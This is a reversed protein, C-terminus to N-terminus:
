SGLFGVEDEPVRFVGWAIEDANWATHARQDTYEADTRTWLERNRAAYDRDSM